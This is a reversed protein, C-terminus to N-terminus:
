KRARENAWVCRVNWKHIYYENSTRVFTHSYTLLLLFAVGHIRTPSYVYEFNLTHIYWFPFPFELSYSDSQMLNFSNLCNRKAWGLQSHHECVCVREACMCVFDTFNHLLSMRNWNFILKDSCFTLRIAVPKWFVPGHIYKDTPFHINKTYIYIYM